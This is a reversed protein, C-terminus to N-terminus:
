IYSTIRFQPHVSFEPKSQGIYNLLLEDNFSTTFNDKHKFLYCSM